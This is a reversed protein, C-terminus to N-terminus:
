RRLALEAVSEPPLYVSPDPSRVGLHLIRAGTQGVPNVSKGIVVGDTPAVYERVADGFINVLRAVREGAVVESTLEPYVELIGGHDAYMWSSGECIVPQEGPALPRKPLMGASALVAKMGTLSRKIFREQFRHPNGIELTISPIGREMAAGRLTHDSPPNHVIIQSRQLYAM